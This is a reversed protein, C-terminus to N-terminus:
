GSSSERLPQVRAKMERRSAISFRSRFPLRGYWAVALDSGRRATNSAEAAVLPNSNILNGKRSSRRETSLGCKSQGGRGGVFSCSSAALFTTPRKVNFGSCYVLTPNLM